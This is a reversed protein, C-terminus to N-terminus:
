GHRNKTKRQVTINLRQRKKLNARIRNNSMTESISGSLPRRRVAQGILNDIDTESAMIHSHRSGDVGEIILKVNCNFITTILGNDEAYKELERQEKPLRERIFIPHKKFPNKNGRQVLMTGRNYVSNKHHFYLFKVIIPSDPTRGLFHCAKIEDAFLKIGPFKDLLYCVSYILDTNKLLPM